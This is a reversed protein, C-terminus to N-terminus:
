EDDDSVIRALAKADRCSVLWSTPDVGWVQAVGGVESTFDSAQRKQLVDQMDALANDFERDRISDPMNKFVARGLAQNKLTGWRVVKARDHMDATTELKHKGKLTEFPKKVHLLYCRAIVAQKENYAGTQVSIGEIDGFKIREYLHAVNRNVLDQAWQVHKVTLTPTHYNQSIAYLAALRYMKVFSRSWIGAKATGLFKNYLNDCYLQYKDILLGAEPTVAIDKPKGGKSITENIATCHHAFDALYQAWQADLPYLHHNSNFAMRPGSYDFLLFRPITGDKMNREHFAPYLTSGTTDGSITLAPSVTNAVKKDRDSYSIGGVGKKYGSRTFLKLLDSVLKVSEERAKPGMHAECFLGFESIFMTFAPQENLDKLLASASKIYDAGVYQMLSPHIRSLETILDYVGTNIQDKGVGSEGVNIIYQNLGDGRFNYARSAFTSMFVIAASLGYLPLPYPARGLVYQMVYGMMGEPVEASGDDTSTPRLAIQELANAERELIAGTVPPLTRDFGKRMTRGQYDPRSQTKKRQAFACSLWVRLVQDYNRLKNSLKNVIIQDLSSKDGGYSDPDTDMMAALEADARVYTKADPDDFNQPYSFIASDNAATSPRDLGLAQAMVLAEQERPQMDEPSGLVMNGTFTIFRNRSYHEIKLQTNKSGFEPPLKGYYVAHIGKGPGSPSWESYTNLYHLWGIQAERIAKAEPHTPPLEVGKNDTFPDDFDVVSVGDKESLVFGIGGFKREGNEALITEYKYRCDDFTSWNAPDMANCHNLHHASCPVKTGKSSGQEHEVIWLVWHPLSKLYGPISDM